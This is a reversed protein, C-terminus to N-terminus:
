AMLLTTVVYLVSASWVLPWSFCQNGQRPM